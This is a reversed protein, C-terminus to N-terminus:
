ERFLFFYLAVVLFWGMAWSRLNVLQYVSWQAPELVHVLKTNVNVHACTGSSYTQHYMYM